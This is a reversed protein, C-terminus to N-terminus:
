CARLRRLLAHARGGATRGDAARPTYRAAPHRRPFHDEILRLVDVLQDVMQPVFTHLLPVVPVSDDIQEVTRRPVREQPGPPEALSAPQRGGGAEEEYLSFLEPQPPPTKWVKATCHM